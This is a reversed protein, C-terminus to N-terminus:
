CFRCLILNFNQASFPWQYWRLSRPLVLINGPHPDCHVFRHKFIMENFIDNIKKGVQAADINNKKMFELDTVKNGSAFEMVLVCKSAYMVRPIKLGDYYRFRNQCSEANKKDNVFDLELPINTELESVLWDFEFAPFVKKVLHSLKACLKIDVMAQEMVHRHQIKIAVPVVEGNVVFSGKHVQALSGVGIPIPDFNPFISDIASGMEARVVQNIDIMSSATCENQLVSLTQTYEAPILYVLSSMHQGLKVYVGGNRRFLDLLRNASRSHCENLLLRYNPDNQQRQTIKYDLIIRSMTSMARFHRSYESVSDWDSNSGLVSVAALSFGLSITLKPAFKLM